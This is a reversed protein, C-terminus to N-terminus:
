RPKSPLSLRPGRRRDRREADSRSLRRPHRRASRAGANSAAKTVPGIEAPANPQHQRRPVDAQRHRAPKRARAAPPTSSRRTTAACSARTAATASRRRGASAGATCSSCMRRQADLAEAADGRVAAARRNRPRRVGRHRSSERRPARPSRSAPRAHRARPGLVVNATKRGVGPCNWWRTWTPPCEGGHREVLRARHRRDIAGQQPLFRDLRDAARRSRARRGRWRGRM